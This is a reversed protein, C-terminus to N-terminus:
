KCPIVMNDDPPLVNGYQDIGPVKTGFFAYKGYTVAYGCTVNKLRGCKFFARAGIKNCSHPIVVKSYKMGVFARPAITKVNEKVKYTGTGPFALILTKKDKTYLGKSDTSYKKNDKAVTIKKLKTFYSFAGTQIKKVTKPIEIDKVKTNKFYQRDDRSVREMKNAAATDHIYATTQIETVTYSKGQIKVKEPIKIHAKADSGGQIKVAARNQATIYYELGAAEYDPAPLDALAAKSTITNGFLCICLFMAMVMRKVYNM